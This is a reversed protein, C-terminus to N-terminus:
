DNIEIKKEKKYNSCSTRKADKLMELSCLIMELPSVDQDISDPLTPNICKLLKKIVRPQPQARHAKDIIIKSILAFLHITIGDEPCDIGYFFDEFLIGDGLYNNGTVVNGFIFEIVEGHNTTGM